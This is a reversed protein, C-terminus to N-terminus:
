SRAVECHRPQIRDALAHLATATAARFRDGGPRRRQREPTKRTPGDLRASEMHERFAKDAMVIGLPDM